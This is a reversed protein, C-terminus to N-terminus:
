GPDADTEQPVVYAVLRPTESDDRRVVTVAEAVAPHRRLVASIEDLEIRHGNLKVQTDARGRFELDGGVTLRVLDGTRYWREGAPGAPFRSRTMAPMAHYGLALGSGGIYLEGTVGIPAPQGNGDLVRLTTNRIPRGIPVPGTDAPRIAAVTSWVTTETPGYMNFVRAAVGCLRDALERTLQEGGCLATRLRLGPAVRLLHDWTVPTAQAMTVGRDRILRALRLPNVADDATALVITAGALLPLFLELVSVDFSPSTLALVVDDPDCGPTDLMGTLLNVVARQPVVVGKPRGTSGSTYNVYAVSDSAAPVVGPPSAPGALAKEISLVPLGTDPLEGDPSAPDTVVLAADSDTLMYEIRHPPYTPDIPVYAAGAKWAALMAVLMPWSRALHLAIRDGPSVGESRFRGAMHDAAAGLEAYTLDRDPARVAIVEPWARLGREILAALTLPPLPVPPPECVAAIRAREAEDLLNLRGIPRDPDAVADALLTQFRNLLLGAAPADFLDASCVLEVQMASDDVTDVVTLGVDNEMHDLDIWVMRTRVGALQLDTVRGHNLLVQFFPTRAPNREPRLEAVLVSLPIQRHELAGLFADRVRSLLDTFTTEPSLRLRVPLVNMFLGILERAAARDRGSVPLGVALDTAGGHRHLLAAFGAALVMTTSTRAQQALNRVRDLGARDVVATAAHARQDSRAPRPRDTPLELEEPLGELTERWYALNSQWERGAAREREETVQKAYSTTLPEPSWAAGSLFAAYADALESCLVRLGRGDSVIHHLAFVLLHRDPGWRVLAARVLEPRTLDFPRRVYARAWEVSDEESGTEARDLRLRAREHVTAFPTGGADHFSTRLTEHRDAVALLARELAGAHVPGALQAGLPVHLAPLGPTLQELLWIREQGFSLPIDTAM